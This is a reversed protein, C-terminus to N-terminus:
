SVTYRQIREREGNQVAYIDYVGDVPVGGASDSTEKSSVDNVGDGITVLSSTGEAMEASYDGNQQEVVIRDAQGFGTVSVTIKETGDDTEQQIIDVTAGYASQQGGTYFLAAAFIATAVLAALALIILGLIPAVGRQKKVM